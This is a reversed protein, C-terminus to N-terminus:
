SGRRVSMFGVRYGSAKLAKMARAAMVLVIVLNVIPVFMLMALVVRVVVPLGQGWAMLVVGGLALLFCALNFIGAVQKELAATVIALLLAGAAWLVLTLGLAVKEIATPMPRAEAERAPLLTARPSDERARAADDRARPAEAAPLPTNIAGCAPCKAGPTGPMITSCRACTAM